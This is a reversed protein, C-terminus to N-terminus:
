FYIGGFIHCSLELPSIVKKAAERIHSTIMKYATNWESFIGRLTKSSKRLLLNGGMFNYGIM